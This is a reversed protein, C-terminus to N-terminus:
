YTKFLDNASNQRSIIGNTSWLGGSSKCIEQNVNLFQQKSSAGCIKQQFWTRLNHLGIWFSSETSTWGLRALEPLIVCLVTRNSSGISLVDTISFLVLHCSCTMNMMGECITLQGVGGASVCGWVMISGGGYKVTAVTCAPLNEEGRIRQVRVNPGNPYLQFSSEDSWLIKGCHAQTWQRHEKGCMRRTKRQKETILLM